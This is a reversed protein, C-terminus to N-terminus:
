IPRVRSIHWIPISNSKECMRTRLLRDATNHIAAAMLSTIPHSSRAATDVSAAALKESFAKPTFTRRRVSNATAQKRM